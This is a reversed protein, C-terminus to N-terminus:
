EMYACVMKGKFRDFSRNGARHTGGDGRNESNRMSVAAFEEDARLWRMSVLEAWAERHSEAWEPVVQFHL